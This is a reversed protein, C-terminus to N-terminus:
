RRLLLTDTLQSSDFVFVNMLRKVNEMTRQRYVVGLLKIGREAHTCIFPGGLAGARLLWSGRAAMIPCHMHLRYTGAWRTASLTLWNLALQMWSAKLVKATLARQGVLQGLLRDIQWYEPPAVSGTLADNVGGM